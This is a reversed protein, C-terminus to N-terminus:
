DSIYDDTGFTHEGRVIEARSTDVIVKIHPDFTDNLFKILPRILKEFEEKKDNNKMPFREM